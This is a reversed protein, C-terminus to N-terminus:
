EKIVKNHLLMIIKNNKRKCPNSEYMQFNLGVFLLIMKSSLVHFRFGFLQILCYIRLIVCQFNLFLIPFYHIDGYFLIVILHFILYLHVILVIVISILHHFFYYVILQNIKRHIQDDNLQKNNREDDLKWQLQRLQEDKNSIEDSLSEIRRHYENNELKIRSNETRLEEFKNDLGIIQNGIEREKKSFSEERQQILNEFTHTM